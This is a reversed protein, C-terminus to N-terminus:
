EIWLLDYTLNDHVEIDASMTEKNWPTFDFKGGAIEQALECRAKEAAKCDTTNIREYANLRNGHEDMISLVVSYCKKM